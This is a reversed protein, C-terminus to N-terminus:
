CSAPSTAPDQTLSLREKDSWMFGAKQTGRLGFPTSAVQGTALVRVGDDFAEAVDNNKPTGSPDLALVSLVLGEWPLVVVGGGYASIPVLAPSM